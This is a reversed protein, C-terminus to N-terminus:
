QDETLNEIDLLDMGLINNADEIDGVDIPAIEITEEELEPVEDEVDSVQVEPISMEEIVSNANKKAEEVEQKYKKTVMGTEVMHQYMEMERAMKQQEAVLLLKEMEQKEEILQLIKIKEEIMEATMEGEPTSDLMAMIDDDNQEEMTDIFNNRQIGMTEQEFRQVDEVEPGQGLILKQEEKQKKEKEKLIELELIMEEQEKM